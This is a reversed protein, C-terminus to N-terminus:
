EEDSVSEEKLRERGEEPLPPLRFMDEGEELRHSSSATTAMSVQSKKGSVQELIKAMLFKSVQSDAARASRHSAKDRRRQRRTQCM